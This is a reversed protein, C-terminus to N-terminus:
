SSGPLLVKAQSPVMTNCRDVSQGDNDVQRTSLRDSCFVIYMPAAAKLSMSLIVVTM